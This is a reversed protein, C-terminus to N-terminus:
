QSAEWHDTQCERALIIAADQGWAYDRHGFRIGEDKLFDRLTYVAMDRAADARMAKDTRMFEFAMQWVFQATNLPGPFRFDREAEQRMIDNFIAPIRENMWRAVASAARAEIASRLSM